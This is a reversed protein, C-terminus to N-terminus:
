FFTLCHAITVAQSMFMVCAEMEEMQALTSTKIEQILVCFFFLHWIKM